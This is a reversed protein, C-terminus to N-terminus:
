QRFGSPIMSPYLRVEQRCVPCLRQAWGEPKPGLLVTLCLKGFVHSCPLKVAGEPDGNLMSGPEGYPGRCIACARDDHPLNDINVMPLSEVFGKVTEFSHNGSYFPEICEDMTMTFAVGDGVNVQLHYLVHDVDMATMPLGLAKGVVDEPLNKMWSSLQSTWLSRYGRFELLEGITFDKGSTWRCVRRMMYVVTRGIDLHTDSSGLALLAEIRRLIDMDASNEAAFTANVFDVVLKQFNHGTEADFLPLQRIIHSISAPFHPPISTPDVTIAQHWPLAALGALPDALMVHDKFETASLRFRLKENVWFEEKLVNNELRTTANKLVKQDHSEGVSGALVAHEHLIHNYDRRKVPLINENYWDSGYDFWWDDYYYSRVQDFDQLNPKLSAPKDQLNQTATGGNSAIPINDAMISPINGM